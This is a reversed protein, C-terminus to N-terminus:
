LTTVKVGRAVDTYDSRALRVTLTTGQGEVSKASVRHGLREAAEKVLYLGLGTARSHTRGNVGTYFPQFVYRLDQAPIGIGPDIFHIEVDADTVQVNLVFTGPVREGDVIKSGYQLANRVIQDCLFAFWKADTQVFVAAAACEIKPFLRFRIWEAKHDNVVGRLLALLEVTEMHADMSFEHLRATQLMLNISQDLRTREERLSEAIEGQGVNQLEGELLQVVTLPTKMQHAFRNVFQEYFNRQEQLRRLEQEYSFYYRHVLEQMARQEETRAEQLTFAEALHGAGNLRTNVARYFPSRILYEVGLCLAIAFLGLLLAYLLISPPLNVHSARIYLQFLTYVLVLGFAFFAVTRGQDRLFRRFNM